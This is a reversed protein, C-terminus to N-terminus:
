GRLCVQAELVWLTCFSIGYVTDWRSSLTSAPVTSANTESCIGRTLIRFSEKFGEYESRGIQAQL